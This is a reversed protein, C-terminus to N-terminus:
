SPFWLICRYVFSLLKSMAQVATLTRTGQKPDKKTFQLTQSEFRLTDFYKRNM